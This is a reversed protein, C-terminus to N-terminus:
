GPRRFSHCSRASRRVSRLYTATIQAWRRKFAGTSRDGTPLTPLYVGTQYGYPTAGNKQRTEQYAIFFFLKDKKIPGGITAGLQNENLTQATNPQNNTLQTYKNFFDNADMITDRFFEFITGHFQNTGSRTVVNVNGGANRGYSADYNATQIKFEEITDPNPIAFAGYAGTETTANSSFNNIPTGDMQFNNGYQDGGNVSIITNGSGLSTANNVSSSAGASLGLLNTYNRTSLPLESVTAETLVTGVTASATQIAEAESAEVTVEQTAAGVTLVNSLAVTETVVVTISPVTLKKFGKAEIALSYSGPALLTFNYIGTDGTTVTRKQGTGLSTITVSATTIVAGTTDKVTGTIAGSESTQALLCPVAVLLLVGVLATTFQTVRRM